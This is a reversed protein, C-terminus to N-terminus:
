FESFPDEAKSICILYYNIYKSIAKVKCFNEMHWIFCVMLHCIDKYKSILIYIGIASICGRLTLLVSELTRATLNRNMYAFHAYLCCSHAQLLDNLPGM